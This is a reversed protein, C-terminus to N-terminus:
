GFWGRITTAMLGVGFVALGWEPSQLEFGVAVSVLLLGALAQIERPRM